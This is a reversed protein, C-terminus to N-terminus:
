AMLSPKNPPREFSIDLSLDGQKADYFFRAQGWTCPDLVATSPHTSSFKVNSSRECAKLIRSELVSSEFFVILDFLFTVSLSRGERIEIVVNASKGCVSVKGLLRYRMQGEDIRMPPSCLKAIAGVLDNKKDLELPISDISVSGHKM